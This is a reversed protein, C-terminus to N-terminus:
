RRVKVLVLYIKQEAFRRGICMRAGHGFPLLVFNSALRLADGEDKMWREPLYCDADKFYEEMLCMTQCNM